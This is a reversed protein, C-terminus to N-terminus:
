TPKFGVYFPVKCLYNIGRVSFLVKCLFSVGALYSLCALKM